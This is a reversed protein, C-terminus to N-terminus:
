PAEGHGKFLVNHTRVSGVDVVTMARTPEGQGIAVIVSHQEARVNPTPIHVLPSRATYRHGIFDQLHHIQVFM